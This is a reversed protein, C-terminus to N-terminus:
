ADFTSTKAFHGREPPGMNVFRLRRTVAAAAKVITTSAESAAHLPSLSSLLSALVM